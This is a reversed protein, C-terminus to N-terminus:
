FLIQKIIAMLLLTYFAAAIDDAMVGFGGKFAREFSRIPPPKV